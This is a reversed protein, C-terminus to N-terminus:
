LLKIAKVATGEAYERVEGLAFFDGDPTYLRLRTGLPYSTRIKKQYIECGNVCLRYYFDPLRVADLERFLEETPILLGLREEDSLENLYELTVANEIRFGGAATRRLTSMVGGCGLRAGIDACLTRIYTGSSCAVSLAYDSPTDTPTVSLHTITIDRPQREVTKGERALDCLKKGGVKLASYMPPIQQTVGLFKEAADAVDKPSPLTTCQTLVAGTVDETDTTIGLKLTAEYEKADCVLYEAAKAARGILMVLVGSALPDLTGTHGVRKTGFLKRIKYVADHSTIGVPKDLILLGSPETNQIQSM